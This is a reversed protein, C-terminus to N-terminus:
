WIGGAPRRRYRSRAAARTYFKAAATKYPLFGDGEIYLDMPQGTEQPTGASFDRYASAIQVGSGQKLNAPSGTDAPNVMQTYLADKFGTSQSKYGTVGVNAINSAIIDLRQQQAQLGHKATFVSQM